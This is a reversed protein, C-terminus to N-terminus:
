IHPRAYIGRQLSIARLKFKLADVTLSVGAEASGDVLPSMLMLVLCQDGNTLHFILYRILVGSKSLNYLGCVRSSKRVFLLHIRKRNTQFVESGDTGFPGILPRLPPSRRSRSVGPRRKTFPVIGLPIRYPLSFVPPDNCQRFLITNRQIAPRHILPRASRSIIM